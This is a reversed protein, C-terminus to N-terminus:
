KNEEKCELEAIKEFPIDRGRGRGYDFVVFWPKRYERLKDTLDKTSLSQLRGLIGNLIKEDEDKVYFDTIQAIPYGGYSCYKDYVSMVAPGIKQASFLDDFLPKETKEYYEVWLFYLIGQLHLNTIPDKNDAFWKLVFNAVDHVPYVGYGINIKVPAPKQPPKKAKKEIGTVEFEMGEFDGCVFHPAITLVKVAQLDYKNKIEAATMIILQLDDKGKPYLYFVEDEHAKTLKLAEKLTIM